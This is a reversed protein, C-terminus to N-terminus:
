VCVCVCVNIEDLNKFPIGWGLREKSLIRSGWVCKFGDGSGCVCCRCVCVRVTHSLGRRGRMYRVHAHM